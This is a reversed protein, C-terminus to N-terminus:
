EMRRAWIELAIDMMSLFYVISGLLLIIPPYIVTDPNAAYFIMALQGTNALSRVPVILMVCFPSRIMQGNRLLEIVEVMNHVAVTSRHLVPKLL